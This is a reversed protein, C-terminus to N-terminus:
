ECIDTFENWTCQPIRNCKNRKLSDCGVCQKDVASWYCGDTGNCVSKGGITDCTPAPPESGCLSTSEFSGFSAGEAKLEGEVYVEYYGNGWECCIGDGYDDYITFTYDSGDCTATMDLCLTESQLERNSFIDKSAVIEDNSDTIQWSTESGFSDTRVDVRVDIGDPCIGVPMASPAPSLTPSDNVNLADYAAKAQILGHGFKNDYGDTGLDEATAELTSIITDASLTPFNSWVLAAVGAAHPCAMSTGSYKAYRNGPLTSLVDSGPAAIDVEDNYTSFSSKAKSETISAVSVVHNYSAPYQYARRGTNGAAAFVLIGQDHADNIASQFSSTAGGGGLSMNIVNAGKAVCEQFGQIIVSTSTSGSPPFVRVAHIKVQGNRIVGKVGKNNGGIAAITGAVHTGHGGSDDEYWNPYGDVFSAGTVISPDDPLDEHARDYGSDIICVKRSGSNADSVDEAQVHGIGYPTDEALNRTRQNPSLRQLYVPYDKEFFKIGGTRQMWRGAARKSPFKVVSINRSEIRRIVSPEREDNQKSFLMKKSAEGAQNREFEVIYQNEFEDETPYPFSPDEALSIGNFTLLAAVLSIFLKSVM